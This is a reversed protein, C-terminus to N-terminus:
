WPPAGLATMTSTTDCVRYDQAHKKKKLCFVAYSINAHSSNLRTSKRDVVAAVWVATHTAATTPTVTTTDSPRAWSRCWAKGPRHSTRAASMTGHAAESIM